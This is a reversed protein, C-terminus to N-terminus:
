TARHGLWTRQANEVGLNSFASNKNRAWFNQMQSTSRSKCVHTITLKHDMDRIENHLYAPVMQVMTGDRREFLSSASWSVYFITFCQGQNQYITFLFNFYKLKRQNEQLHPKLEPFVLLHPYDDKNSPFDIPPVQGHYFLTQFFHCM